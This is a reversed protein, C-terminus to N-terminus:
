RSDWVHPGRHLVHVHGQADVAVATVQGLQVQGLRPSSVGNLSWDAALSLGLSPAVGVESLVDGHTDEGEFFPRRTTAVTPPPSPQPLPLSPSAISTPHLPPCLSPPGPAVSKPCMYIDETEEEEMKDGGAVLDEKHTDDVSDPDPSGGGGEGQGGPMTDSNGHHHHHHGSSSEPIPVDPFHLTKSAPSWCEDETLSKGDNATYYM